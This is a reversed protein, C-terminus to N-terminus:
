VSWGAFMRPLVHARAEAAIEAKAFGEFDAHRECWRGADEGRGRLWLCVIRSLLRAVFGKEPGPDAVDFSRIVLELARPHALDVLIRERTEDDACAQIADLARLAAARGCVTPERAREGKVAGTKKARARARWTTSSREGRVAALLPGLVGASVLAAAEEQEAFEAFRYLACCARTLLAADRKAVGYAIADAVGRSRLVRPGECFAGLLQELFLFASRAVSVQGARMHRLVPGLDGLRSIVVEADDPSKAVVALIRFAARITSPTCRRGRVIQVAPVIMSAALRSMKWSWADKWVHMSVLQFAALRTRESPAAGRAVAAVQSSHFIGDALSQLTKDKDKMAFFRMLTVLISFLAPEDCAACDRTLLPNAVTSVFFSSVAADILRMDGTVVVNGVVRAAALRLEAPVEAEWLADRAAVFVNSELVAAARGKARRLVAALSIMGALRADQCPGLLEGNLTRLEGEM